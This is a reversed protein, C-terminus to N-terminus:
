TLGFDDVSSRTAENRKGRTKKPAGNKSAAPAAPPADPDLYRRTHQDGVEDRQRDSFRLEAANGTSAYAAVNRATAAFVQRSKARDYAVVNTAAIHLGAERAAAFADLGAGLCVFQWGAQEKEKVLLALDANTYEVSVNEQGDTQFVIVVAPDDKRAAVAEATAKIIKVAADILPTMAATQYDGDTLPRVRRIPEAVYRKQTRSSNFSVLSFLIDGSSQQLEEIYANFGAITDDKISQMSGTEDLLFSVFTTRPKSM